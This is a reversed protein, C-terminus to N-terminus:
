RLRLTRGPALLGVAQDPVCVTLPQGACVCVCVCARRSLSPDKVKGIVPRVLLHNGRQHPPVAPVAYQSDDYDRM